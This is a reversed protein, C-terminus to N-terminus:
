QIKRKDGFLGRYASTEFSLNEADFPESHRRDRRVFVVCEDSKFSVTFRTIVGSGIFDKSHPHFILVKRGIDDRTLQSGDIMKCRMRATGLKELPEVCM